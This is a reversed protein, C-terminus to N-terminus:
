TTASRRRAILLVGGAILLLLAAGAISVAITGGTAALPPPVDEPWEPLACAEAGDTLGNHAIGATNAFGGAQGSGPEPCTLTSADAADTDVTATVVVRYTHTGGAALVGEALTNEGAGDEGLGTWGEAVTVGEPAETVSAGTVTIGAGYRLQDTVTYDGQEAGDNTAVIEYEITWEGDTLTPEGVVSKTIDISPLPACDTDTQTGGTEDTLTAANNLGQQLFNGGAPV